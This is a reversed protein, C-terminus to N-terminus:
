KGDSAPGDVNTMSMEADPSGGVNGSIWVHEINVGPGSLSELWLGVGSSSFFLSERSV